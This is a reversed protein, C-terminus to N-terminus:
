YKLRSYDTSNGILKVQITNLLSLTGSNWPFNSEILVNTDGCANIKTGCSANFKQWYEAAFMSDRNSNEGVSLVSPQNDIKRECTTKINNGYKLGTLFDENNSQLNITSKNMIDAFCAVTIMAFNSNSKLTTTYAHYEAGGYTEGSRNTGNVSYPQTTNLDFFVNFPGMTIYKASSVSVLLLFLFIILVM